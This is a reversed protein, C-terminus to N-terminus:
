RKKPMAEEMLSEIYEKEATLIEAMRTNSNHVILFQKPKARVEDPISHVSEYFTIREDLRKLLDQLIPLAELTKARQKKREIIQESPEQAYLPADNPYVDDPEYDAM